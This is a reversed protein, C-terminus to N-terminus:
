KSLQFMKKPELLSVFKVNTPNFDKWNEVNLKFISVGCTPVEPLYDNIYQDLFYSITPNHGFLMVTKYRNDIAHIIKYLDDPVAEYITSEQQILEHPYAFADAFFKCTSIARNAPSTILLDPKIGQSKLLDAMLPATANGRDNLPRDFDSLTQNDWSSKAHRILYLHKM